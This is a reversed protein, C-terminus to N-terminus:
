QDIVAAGLLEVLPSFISIIPFYPLLLTLIRAM